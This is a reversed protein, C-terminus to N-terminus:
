ISATVSRRVVRLPSIDTDANQVPVSEQRCGLKARRKAVIAGSAAVGLSEVGCV